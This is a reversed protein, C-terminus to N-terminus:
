KHQTPIIQTKEATSLKHNVNLKQDALFQIDEEIYSDSLCESRVGIDSLQPYRGTSSQMQGQQLTDTKRLIM